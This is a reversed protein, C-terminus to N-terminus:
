YLYRKINKQEIVRELIECLIQQKSVVKIKNSIKQKPSTAVYVEKIVSKEILDVADDSFLGHTALLYVSRAGKFTLFSSFDVITKATDINNSILLIDKNNINSEINYKNKNNPLKESVIFTGNILNAIDQTKKQLEYDITTVIFDKDVFNEELVKSFIKSMSINFVPIKFVSSILPSYLDFTYISSVDVLDFLRGLLNTNTIYNLNIPSKTYPLYPIILNVHNVNNKKLTDIIQLLQMISENIPQTVTYILFVNKYTIHSIIDVYIESGNIKKVDMEGLSINLSQSINRALARDKEPAFLIFKKSSPM